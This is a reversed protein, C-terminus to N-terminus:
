RNYLHRVARGWAGWSFERRGLLGRRFFLIVLLLLLSFIVMRLGPIGPLNLGWLTMPEEVVRLWEGAVTFIIAAIVAGTTSGLGGVVIIILLNFTLFFTFLSPSITTILHALLGGGVGFLFASLIYALMLIRFSDVGMARAATEDERIAQMARGYNSNVLSVVLAVAAAAVGWSWWLNTYPTLGKLGLPGNTLGQLNNALVRVVEGFGLTIIALYDGRVRFVPFGTLFGFVAAVVGGALLALPFPLTIESLPWYLPTFIFVLSKEEATLTLLAATYAGLTIFANPGLHLQGCVGNILNYGVALTIFIAMNNLLRVQYENAWRGAVWIVLALMGLAALNLWLKQAPKM